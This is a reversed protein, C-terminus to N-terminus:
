NNLFQRSFWKVKQEEIGEDLLYKKIEMAIKEDMNAILIYDWEHVKKRFENFSIVPLNKSQYFLYNKDVWASVVINHEVCYSYLNQGMGGAGYIVVKEHDAIGGYPYLKMKDDWFSLDRLAILYKQFADRQLELYRDDRFIKELYAILIQISNIENRKKKKTVSGTRQVYHYGCIDTVLIHNCKMIYPYVVAVDEGMRIRMDLERQVKELLEKKFLKTVGHPQIGYEFFNGNYLVSNAIESPTYIGCEINNSITASDKGIDFYLNAVVLDVDNGMAQNMMKEFYDPEIWDDSDVWIIYDGNAIKTGAYRSAAAGQNLQHLVEINSYIKSFNDCITGSMDTSGDDVLIIQLNEYTQRIVSFLCKEIYLEVNYVPIVVSLLPTM